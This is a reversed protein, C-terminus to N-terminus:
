GPGTADEESFFDKLNGGAFPCPPMEMDFPLGGATGNEFGSGPAPFGPMGEGLQPFQGRQQETLPQGGGMGMSAGMPHQMFVSSMMANLIEQMFKCDSKDQFGFAEGITNTSVNGRTLKDFSEKSMEGQAGFAQRCFEADADVDFDVVMVFIMIGFFMKRNKGDVAEGLADELGPLESRRAGFLDQLGSTTTQGNMLGCVGQSDLGSQGLRDLMQKSREEGFRQELGNSLDSVFEGQIYGPGATASARLEEAITKKSSGAGAGQALVVGGALLLAAAVMRPFRGHSM